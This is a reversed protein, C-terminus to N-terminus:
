PKTYAHYPCSHNTVLQQVSDLHFHLEVIIGFLSNQEKAVQVTWLTRTRSNPIVPRVTVGALEDQEDRRGKWEVVVLEM